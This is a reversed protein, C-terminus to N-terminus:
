ARVSELHDRLAYWKISMNVGPKHWRHLAFAKPSSVPFSLKEKDLGAVFRGAEVGLVTGMGVGRGNYGMAAVLGPEIETLFPLSDKTFAIRGGWHYDWRTDRLAPFIEVVRKKMADYDTRTFEDRMPGHDGCCLRGDRDYRMYLILRRKDVFSVEGPLIKARLEASLPETAALVSRIPVVKKELGPVPTSETYGNTCVLVKKCSVSGQATHVKWGNTKELRTVASETHLRVGREMAVRALERTYALPQLTGATPCFLGGLYKDSGIAARAKERSLVQLECGYKAFDEALAAQWDLVSQTAASQVWGNQVPDCRLGFQKIRDFVTGPTNSVARVLRTGAEEGFRGILDAPDLNLGVNVQGGSRGSAGFGLWSAELVCVTLGQSILELAANLGTFGAGIITVDASTSELLPATDPAAVATQMWLASRGDFLETSTM